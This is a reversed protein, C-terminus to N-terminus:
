KMVIRIEDGIIIEHIISKLTHNVEGPDHHTLWHPLDEGQLSTISRLIEARQTTEERQHDADDQARQMENM